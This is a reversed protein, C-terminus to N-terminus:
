EFPDHTYIKLPKLTTKTDVNGTYSKIKNDEGAVQKKDVSEGRGVGLLHLAPENNENLGSHISLSDPLINGIDMSRWNHVNNGTHINIAYLKAQAKTSCIGDEPNIKEPPTFSTFYLKNQLVIAEGISKEAINKLAYKWGSAASLQAKIVLSELESESSSLPADTIEMLDDITITAPPKPEGLAYNHSLQYDKLLFFYDQTETSSIPRTRDGSGILIADYPKNRFKFDGVGGNDKTSIVAKEITPVITPTNFFRRDNSNEAGALSAVLYGSWHNELELSLDLRWIDGGTDAIYLRDTFGDGNTDLHAPTAPMSNSINVLHNVGENKRPTFSQVLNGTIADIIFLGRGVSDSRGVGINDKNADYGGSVIMVPKPKDEVDLYGAIYTIIPKSWSQGLESFGTTANSVHWLLKPSNLNTIDLAYYSSGGRRLGFYIYRKDNHEFLTIQGDIGYIKNSTARNKRLKKQKSLLENPLFAWVESVTGGSDKFMHLMGSNTGLIIRLDPSSEQTTKSSANNIILPKFHLSDGLLDARIDAVSENHNEDDIDLGYIWDIMAPVDSMKVALRKKMNQESKLDKLESLSDGWDTFISRQAQKPLHSNVGGKNVENGDKIEGWFTTASAKIKGESNIAEQNNKDVLSGSNSLKLKKLNGQWRPGSNPMFATYYITDLSQTRDFNDSAFSPTTTTAEKQLIEVLASQLAGQLAQADRAEYYKGGARSATEQLLNGAGAIANDGYGITYTIVNQKMAEQGEVVEETFLDNKYMHSSVAALYSSDNKYGYSVQESEIAGLLSKISPDAHKDLTPQGDTILIISAQDSCRSFPSIYMTRSANLASFDPPPSNAIHEYALQDKDVFNYMPQGGSFYLYAEFLTECLPTNTTAPMGSIITLLDKKHQQGGSIKKVLRGGNIIENQNADLGNFNFLMLGFDVTPTSKILKLIADKAVLLRSKLNTGVDSAHYWRLYNATYLTINAEPNFHSSRDAYVATYLAKDTNNGRDYPFGNLVNYPKAASWPRSSRTVRRYERNYDRYGYPNLPNGVMMDELCDIITEDSIEKDNDPLDEWSGKKEKKGEIRYYRLYGSYRGSNVLDPISEACANATEPFHRLDDDEGPIPVDQEKNGGFSYYLQDHAGNDSSGLSPYVIDRHYGKKVATFSSMSGSNDFIILVKPKRGEQASLDAVFLETDEAQTTNALFLSLIVGCISQLAKSKNIIKKSM